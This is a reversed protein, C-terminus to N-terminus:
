TNKNNENEQVRAIKNFADFLNKDFQINAMYFIINNNNNLGQFFM